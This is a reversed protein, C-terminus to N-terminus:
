DETSHRCSHRAREARQLSRGVSQGRRSLSQRNQRYKLKRDRESTADGEATSSERVRKHRELQLLGNMHESRAQKSARGTQWSYCYCQERGGREGGDKGDDFDYCNVNIKFQQRTMANRSRTRLRVRVSRPKSPRNRLAGSRFRNEKM